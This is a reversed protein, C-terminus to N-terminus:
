REQQNQLAAYESEHPVSLMVGQKTAWHYVQDLFYAMEGKNLDKTSKVQDEIVEKGINVTYVGMFRRKLWLKWVEEPKDHKIVHGKNAMEESIQRYWVHAMANQSISRPNEYPEFKITLPKSYDWEEIRRMLFPLRRQIETADKIFIYDGQTMNIGEVM